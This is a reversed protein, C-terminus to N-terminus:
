KNLQKGAGLDLSRSEEMNRSFRDLKKKKAYSPGSGGLYSASLLLYGRQSLYFYKCKFCGLQLYFLPM